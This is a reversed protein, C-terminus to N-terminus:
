SIPLDFSVFPVAFSASAKWFSANRFSITLPSATGREILNLRNITLFLALAAYIGDNRM